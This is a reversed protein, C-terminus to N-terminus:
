PENIFQWLPEGDSTSLFQAPITRGNGVDIDPMGFMSKNTEVVGKFVFARNRYYEAVWPATVQKNPILLEGVELGEKLKGKM